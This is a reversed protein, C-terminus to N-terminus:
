KSQKNWENVAENPTNYWKTLIQKCDNNWCDITWKLGQREIDNIAHHIYPNRNCFPCNNLEDNDISFLEIGVNDQVPLAKNLSDPEQKCSLTFIAICILLLKNHNM